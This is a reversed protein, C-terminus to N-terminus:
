SSVLCWKWGSRTAPVQAGSPFANLANLSTRGALNKFFRLWTTLFSTPTACTWFFIFFTCKSICIVFKPGPFADQNKTGPRWLSQRIESLLCRLCGSTPTRFRCTKCPLCSIAANTQKPFPLFSGFSRGYDKWKITQNRNSTNGSEQAFADNLGHEM